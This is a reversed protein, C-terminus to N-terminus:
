FHGIFEIDKGDTQKAYIWGKAYDNYLPHFDVVAHFELPEEKQEEDKKKHDPTHYDKKHDDPYSYNKKHDDPYYNYDKHEYPYEHKDKDYYDYEKYPLYKYDKKYSPYYYSHKSSPYYPQYYNIGKYSRGWEAETDIAQASLTFLALSTAFKTLM